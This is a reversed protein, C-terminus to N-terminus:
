QGDMEVIRCCGSLNQKAEGQQLQVKVSFPYERDSMGDSCAEAKALWFVEEGETEASFGFIPKTSGLPQGSWLNGYTAQRDEFVWDATVGGEADTSIGWFPETGTCLLNAPFDAQAERAMYHMYVWGENGDSLVMGWRENASLLYVVVDQQDPALGGIVPAATTPRARINLQDSTGVGTVSYLAPVSQALAPTALLLFFLLIRIM